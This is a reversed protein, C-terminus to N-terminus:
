AKRSMARKAWCVACVWRTPSLYIGGEPVRESECKACHKLKHVPSKSSGNLQIAQKMFSM